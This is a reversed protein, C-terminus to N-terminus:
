DRASVKIKTKYKITLSASKAGKSNLIFTSTKLISKLM